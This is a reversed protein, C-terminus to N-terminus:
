RGADAKQPDFNLEKFLREVEDTRAGSEIAPKAPAQQPELLRSGWPSCRPEKRMDLNVCLSVDGTFNDIRWLSQHSGSSMAYHGTVAIATAICFLGLFIGLSWRADRKPLDM